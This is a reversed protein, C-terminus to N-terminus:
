WILNLYTRTSKHKQSLMITPRLLQWLVLPLLKLLLKIVVSLFKVAGLFLVNRKAATLCKLKQKEINSADRLTMMMMM